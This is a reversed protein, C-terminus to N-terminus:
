AIRKLANDHNRNTVFVTVYLERHVFKMTNFRTRFEALDSHRLTYKTKEQKDHISICSGLNGEVTYRKGSLYTTSIRMDNNRVIPQQRIYETPELTCILYLYAGLIAIVFVTIM